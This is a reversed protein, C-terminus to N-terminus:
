NVPFFTTQSSKDIIGGYYNPVVGSIIKLSLPADIKVTAVESSKPLSIKEKIEVHIYIELLLNNIGYSTVKTKLNSSVQGLFSMKVPIIPGLNALFGNGSLSGLPIECVIGSDIFRYDIGTLSSSLFLQNINGEELNYLKSYISQNIKKLLLNVKETNYDIMEVENKDNKTIFFLSDNIEQTLLDNITSDVVNSTIREVESSLYNVLIPNVREGLLFLFFFSVLVSLFLCLLMKKCFTM